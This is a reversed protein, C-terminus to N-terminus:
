IPIRRSRKRYVAFASKEGAAAYEPAHLPKTLEQKTKEIYDYLSPYEFGEKLWQTGHYKLEM